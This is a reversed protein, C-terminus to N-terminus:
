LNPEQNKSRLRYPATLLRLATSFLTCFYFALFIPTILRGLIVQCMCTKINAQCHYIQCKFNIQITKNKYVGKIQENIKTCASM